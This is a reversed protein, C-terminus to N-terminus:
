REEKEEVEWLGVLADFVEAWRRTPLDSIGMLNQTIADRFKVFDDHTYDSADYPRRAEKPPNMLAEKLVDCNKRLRLRELNTM